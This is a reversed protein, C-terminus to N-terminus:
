EERRNPDSWYNLGTLTLGIGIAFAYNPDGLAFTVTLAGLTATWGILIAYERRSFGWVWDDLRRYVQRIDDM